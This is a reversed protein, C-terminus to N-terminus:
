GGMFLKRLNRAFNRHFEAPRPTAPMIECCLFRDSSRRARPRFSFTKEFLAVEPPSLVNDLYDEALESEAWYLREELSKDSILQLDIEEIEMASLNGLLYQKYKTNEDKM